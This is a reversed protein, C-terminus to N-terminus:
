EASLSQRLENMVVERRRVQDLNLDKWYHAEIARAAAIKGSEIHECLPLYFTSVEVRPNTPRQYNLSKEFLEKATAADGEITLAIVGLNQYADGIAERTMTLEEEDEIGAELQPLGVAISRDFYERATDLDRQLYYTLILGTDNIVRADQPSLKAAQVYASFSLEMHENALAFLQRARDENDEQELASTGQTEYQVAIDRNFYGANNGHNRDESDYEFLRNALAAAEELNPFCEAYSRDSERDFVEEWAANYKALLFNLSRVGSWLRDQVEWQLGGEFLEEMSWFADASGALDGGYYLSWGKGCRSIVEYALCADTYSAEIERTRAFSKEAAEFTLYQDDQNALISELALEYQSRGLWWHGIAIGDHAEVFATYSDRVEAWGGDEQALRVQTDHLAPDTPALGIGTAITKRADERRNEWLYLNALQGWGWTSTPDLAIEAEIAERTTEFMEDVAIGSNKAATYASFNLEAITREPTSSLYAESPNDNARETSGKALYGLAEELQAADGSQFYLLWTARAAGFWASPVEGSRAAQLFAERSDEFFFPNGDETGMRLTAEGRLFQVESRDSEFGLATDLEVMADRPDGEIMLQRADALALQALAQPSSDSTPATQPASNSACGLCLLTLLAAARTPMRMSIPHTM